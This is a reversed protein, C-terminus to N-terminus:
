QSGHNLKTMTWAALKDLVDPTVDGTVGIDEPAKIIKLNHSANPIIILTHDDNPRGKLAGDLASADLRPSVQTDQEGNIILIPGPFEIALRCPDVALEGKLFKGLYSPYLAALGAPVDLPVQGTDRIAGTIRRNAALFFNTQDPTAGQQKLLSRLQDAIVADIPRGPTSVLILVAPPAEPKLAGVSALALIGGESHGLIGVRAPDVEPQNRLFRYAAAADGVFNEWAFFEGYQSRDKPLEGANAYMGRKDFRLSAVGRNALALAIQKLLDTILTPPQNGDRDTPGSGALLVLAPAKSNSTESPFQFTGTLSTGNQGKFTVQRESVKAPQQAFLSLPLVVCLLCFAPITGNM